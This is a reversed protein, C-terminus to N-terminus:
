LQGETLEIHDSNTCYIHSYPHIHHVNNLTKYPIYETDGYLCSIPGEQESPDIHCMYFIRRNCRKCPAMFIYVNDYKSVVDNIFGVPFQDLWLERSTFFQTGPSPITEVDIYKKYAKMITINAKPYDAVNRVYIPFPEMM